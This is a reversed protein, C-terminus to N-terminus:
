SAVPWVIETVPPEGSAPTSLYRERPGSVPTLGSELLASFLEGYVDSLEEYAGVHRHVAARTAPLRRVEVPAVPETAPAVPWGAEVVLEGEEDPASAIAMPPGLLGGHAGAFVAVREIAGAIFEGVQDAEVRRVVFAFTQEPLNVVEFDLATRQM